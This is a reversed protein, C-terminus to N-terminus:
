KKHKVMQEKSQVYTKFGIEKGNDDDLAYVSVKKGTVNNNNDYTFRADRGKSDKGEPERLKFQQKFGKRNLM